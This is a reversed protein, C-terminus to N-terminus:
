KQLRTYLIVKKKDIPAVKRLFLNDHLQKIINHIFASSMPCYGIKKSKPWTM